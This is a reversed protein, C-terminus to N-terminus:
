EYLSYVMVTIRFIIFEYRSQHVNIESTVMNTIYIKNGGKIYVLVFYTFVQRLCDIGLRIIGDLETIHRSGLHFDLPAHRM